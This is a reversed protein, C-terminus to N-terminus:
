SDSYLPQAIVCIKMNSSFQNFSSSHTLTEGVFAREPNLIVWGSPSHPNLLVTLPLHCKPLLELLPTKKRRLLHMKSWLCVLSSEATHTCMHPPPPSLILLPSEESLWQVSHRCFIRLMLMLALTQPRPSVPLTRSGHLANIAAQAEANSQFKVFACGSLFRCATPAVCVRMLLRAGDSVGADNFRPRCFIWQEIWWPGYVLAHMM